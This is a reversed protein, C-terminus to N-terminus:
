IVLITLVFLAADILTLPSFILERVWVRAETDNRGGGAPTGSEIGGGEPGPFSTDTIRKGANHDLGKELSLEPAPMDTSKEAFFEGRVVFISKAAFLKKRALVMCLLSIVSLVCVGINVGSTVEPSNIYMLLVSVANNIFHLIYTCLFSGTMFYAAAFILGAAFAYPLAFIDVHALAFFAASVTATIKRPANKLTLLPVVRFVTEELVAPIFAFNLLAYIFSDPLEVGAREIGFLGLVAETAASISMVAFLAIPILMITFIAEKKGFRFLKGLMARRQEEGSASFFHTERARDNGSPYVFFVFVAFLWSLASFVSSIVGSTLSSFVLFFAFSFYILSIKKIDRRINERSYKIM